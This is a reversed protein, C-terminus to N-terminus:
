GVSELTPQDFQYKGYFGNGTNTKPDNGSECTALKFLLQELTEGHKELVARHRSRSARSHHVIEERQQILSHQEDMDLAQDRQVAHSEVIHREAVAEGPYMSMAGVLTLIAPAMRLSSREYPNKPMAFGGM